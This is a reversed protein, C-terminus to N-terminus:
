RKYPGTRLDIVRRVRGSRDITRVLSSWESVHLSVPAATAAQLAAGFTFADALADNVIYGEDRFSAVTIASLPNVGSNLFGTMLENTVIAERWHVDRTGGGGTNEVPVPEGLYATPSNAAAAFAMRASGGTFFPDGGGRGSILTKLNWLSGLGIVHGMEHLVVDRFRGSAELNAVDAVDFQMIGVVSLLDDDRLYCAGAQGLIGGVGDIADIKAFILLDDITENLSQGGCFSLDDAPTFPIDPLDGLLLTGWRVAASDFAAQQSATPTPGIFRVTVAYTSAPPPQTSATFTVPPLAGVTATVTQPGSGFRWAKLRARGDFDTTASPGGLSGGGQGVAFAVQTGAVPFGQADTLRVEPQISGFNGEFGSLAATTTSSLQVPTAQVGTAQFSVVPLGSVTATMENPGATTGLVWSNSRAVGDAGTTALGNGLLRGGGSTVQFIVSVGAIPQNDDDLAIVAPAIPLATGANASQSGGATAQFVTPIGFAAFSASAGNVAAAQLAYAGPARGITWSGASAAGSADTASEGGTVTSRGSPDFFSILEGPVPNGFADTVRVRPASSVTGGIKVFQSPESLPTVLAAPGVSATAKATTSVGGAVVATLTQEGITGGLTWRVQVSGDAGSRGSTPSLFGDSAQFAVTVDPLPGKSDAVIFRVPDTLQAGAKASQGGGAALSIRDPTRQTPGSDGGCAAVLALGTLTTLALRM